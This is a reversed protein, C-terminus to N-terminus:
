RASRWLDGAVKTLVEAREAGTPPLVSLRCDYVNALETWAGALYLHEELTRFARADTPNTAFGQLLRQIREAQEPSTGPPRTRPRPQM